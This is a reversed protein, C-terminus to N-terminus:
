CGDTLNGLALEGDFGFYLFLYFVVAVVRGQMLIQGGTLAIDQGKKGLPIVILTDGIFGKDGEFCDLGM